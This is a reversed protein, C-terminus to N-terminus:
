PLDGARERAAARPGSAREDDLGLRRRRRELVFATTSAVVLAVEPKLVHVTFPAPGDLVLGLLRAATLVLAVVMLAALGTSLRREATLCGLLILAFALPFGGFGVRAVTIGAPSGLAIAHAASAGIPDFLGRLAIMTFLATAAFLVLRSFWITHRLSSSM